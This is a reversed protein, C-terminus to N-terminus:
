PVIPYTAYSAIACNNGRNRSMYIYGDMGWSTGWSNKVIYYDQSGSAGYGVVLVCHDTNTSSCAPEYYVGSQYNQFSSHAADICVSIPGVEAAAQTLDTESGERIKVYNSMTAGISSASFRCAEDEAKYPYSEETDIGKNNMIYEDAVYPWGGQCGYNGKSCDVLNQESLSVLKGTSNFHQGELAGTTSFAWCSGCQGQNKVPTVYGKPRWDVSSPVKASSASFKLAPKPNTDRPIVAGTM